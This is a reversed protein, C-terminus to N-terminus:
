PTPKLFASASAIGTGYLALQSKYNSANAANASNAINAYAGAYSGYGQTQNGSTTGYNYGAGVQPLQQPQTLTLPLQGSLQQALGRYYDQYSKGLNLLNTSVYDAGIGSGANNGIESHLQDLYQNKLYDPLPSNMGAQAQTALQEQLGATVPYAAANADRYLTAYQPAYQAQLNYEEQAFQPDYQLQAQYIQPLSNVYDSVSQAVTPPAPTAAPQIVDTKDGGGM